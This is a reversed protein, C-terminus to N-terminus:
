VTCRLVDENTEPRCSAGHPMSSDASLCTIRFVPPMIAPPKWRLDAGFSDLWHPGGRDKRMVEVIQELVRNKNIANRQVREPVEATTESTETKKIEDAQVQEHFVAPEALIADKKTEREPVKTSIETEKKLSDSKKIVDEQAQGLLEAKKELTEIKSSRFCSPSIHDHLGYLM